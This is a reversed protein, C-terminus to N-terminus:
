LPAFHSIKSELELGIIKLSVGVGIQSRFEIAVSQELFIWFITIDRAPMKVVRVM